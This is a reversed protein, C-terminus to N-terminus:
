SSCPLLQNSHSHTMWMVSFILLIIRELGDAKSFMVNELLNDKSFLFKLFEGLIIGDVSVVVHYVSIETMKKM